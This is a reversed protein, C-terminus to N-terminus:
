PQATLVQPSPNVQQITLDSFSVTVPTAGTSRAFMGILGSRYTSDVVSFQFRGNLFLRMEAGVAWLGIRVEGPAGPPADGSPVPVQLVHQEVIRTYVAREARVTGDCALAFRYYAVSNARVLLGYDDAGRCLSPKATIEAYFDELVPTDRLSIMYVGPQVAITLRNRQIAASAQDSIAIDWRDPNTFRDTVATGGLGPRMEPTATHTALVQATPTESAPFWDITPSPLPTGTPPPLTPASLDFAACAGLLCTM